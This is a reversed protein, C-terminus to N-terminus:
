EETEEAELFDFEIANALGQSIKDRRDDATKRWSLPSLKNGKETAWVLITFEDAGPGFWGIPRQQVKKVKFRLEYYDRFENKAADLKAAHVRPNAWLERSLDSLYGWATDLGAQTAPCGSYLDQIRNKGDPECFVKLTWQPM